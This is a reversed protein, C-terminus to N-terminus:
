AAELFTSHRSLRQPSHGFAACLPLEPRLLGVEAMTNIDRRVTVDSVGLCSRLDTNSVTGKRNVLDFVVRKRTEYM